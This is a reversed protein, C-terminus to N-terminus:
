DVAGAAISNSSIAIGNIAVVGAAVFSPWQDSVQLVKFHVYYLEQLGTLYAILTATVKAAMSNSFHPHVWARPELQRVLNYSYASEEARQGMFPDQPPLSNLQDLATKLFHLVPAMESIPYTNPGLADIELIMSGELLADDAIFIPGAFPVIGSSLQGEKQQYSGYYRQGYDM